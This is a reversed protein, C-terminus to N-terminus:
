RAAGLVALLREVDARTAGPLPVQRRVRAYRFALWDIPRSSLPGVLFLVGFAIAFLGAMGLRGLAVPLAVMDGLLFGGCTALGFILLPVAALLGLTRHRFSHRHEIALDSLHALAFSMRAAGTVDLVLLHTDTLALKGGTFHVEVVNASQM